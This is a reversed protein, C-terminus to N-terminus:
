RLLLTKTDKDIPISYDQASIVIGSDANIVKATIYVRTEGVAYTGVIVAQAHHSNSIDKLERSLMFEGSDQKVYIDKRLLLEFVQYGNSTFVTAFQQSISRGLASSESLNNINVFSAAILPDRSLRNKAHDVLQQAAAHNHNISYYKNDLTQCGALVLGAALVFFKM